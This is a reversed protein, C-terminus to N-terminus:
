SEHTLDLTYQSVDVRTPLILPTSMMDYELDIIGCIVDGPSLAVDHFYRTRNLQPSWM